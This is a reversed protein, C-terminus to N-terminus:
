SNMKRALHQEAMELGAVEEQSLTKRRELEKAREFNLFECLMGMKPDGNEDSYPNDPHSTM